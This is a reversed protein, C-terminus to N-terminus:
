VRGNRAAHVGAGWAKRLQEITYLGGPTDPSVPHNESAVRSPPPDAWMGTHYVNDPCECVWGSGWADDFCKAHLDHPRIGWVVRVDGKYEHMYIPGNGATLQPCLGLSAYVRIAESAIILMDRLRGTSPLIDGLCVDCNDCLFVGDDDYLPCVFDRVAGNYEAMSVIQM